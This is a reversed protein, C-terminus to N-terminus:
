IVTRPRRHPVKTPDGLLLGSYMIRCGQLVFYNGLIFIRADDLQGASLEWLLQTRQANTHLSPATTPAADLGYREM